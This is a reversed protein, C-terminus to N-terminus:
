KELMRTLMTYGSERSLGYRHPELKAVQEPEVNPGINADPGFERLLWCQHATTEAEFVIHELGVKDVLERLRKAEAKEGRIGLVNELETREITIKKAGAGLLRKFEEATPEVEFPEQGYKKGFEFLVKLGKDAAMRINEEKEKTSLEIINESVEVATFGMSLLGDLVPAVQKQLYALEFVIGGPFVDVQHERYLRIKRWLLHGEARTALLTYLHRIKVYDVTEGVAEMLDEAAHYGLGYDRVITLGKERPKGPRKPFELCDLARRDAAM